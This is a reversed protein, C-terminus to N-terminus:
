LQIWSEPLLDTTVIDTKKFWRKPTIVTKGPHSGLYAGWWSFSSNAIIHHRCCSMLYMEEYDKLHHDSICCSPRDITINEKVWAPDDSFIWFRTDDDKCSIKDIAQQYYGTSCVGHTANTAPNSAFDGRRVHISVSPSEGIRDALDRVIVGPPNRLRFERRILPEIQKFYKESQWYGELYINDPLAPIGPDFSFRSERVYRITPNRRHMFRWAEAPHRIMWPLPRRVSELDSENTFNETINYASLNYHRFTDTRFASIDLKLEAHLSCALSRGAAYQFMQNGLGGNLQTIIM